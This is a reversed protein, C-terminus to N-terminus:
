QGRFLAGAPILKINDITRYEEGPYVLYRRVPRNLRDSFQSLNRFDRRAPRRASKIEIAYVTNDLEFVLDIETGGVSKYYYFQDAKIMGLKRRKEFEALVFNEFLQGASVGANLSHIIGNDAFYTKAAKIYRKAPGFQYGYFKFTLQAQQLANLYKKTTPHSIGAERAFNSVELHSGLSRALHQLVALLGDLNEINSLQMLDRTFYTNRYNVLVEHKDEDKEQILVEPFQGYTVAGTLSRGAARIQPPPAQGDLISHAPSGLEEGWCATPLPVIDIRGALSDAAADLLGITSSGTMLFRAQENDVAYKVAVTLVPLRQIEDIIARKGLHNILGKPDRKAWDLYDLDDLTAYPWEPYRHKLLTTKGSRRSGVILCSRKSPIELWRKFM